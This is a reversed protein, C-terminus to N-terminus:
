IFGDHDDTCADAAKNSCQCQLLPTEFDRQVFLCAVQTLDARAHLNAWRYGRM